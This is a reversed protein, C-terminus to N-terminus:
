YRRDVREVRRDLAGSQEESVAHECVVIQARPRHGDGIARKILADHAFGQGNRRCGLSAPIHWLRAALAGGLAIWVSTTTIERICVQEFM